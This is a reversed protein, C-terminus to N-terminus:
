SRGKRRRRGLLKDIGQEDIAAGLEELVARSAHGRAAQLSRAPRSDLDAIRADREEHFRRGYTVQCLARLDLYEIGLKRAAKREDDRALAESEDIANPRPVQKGAVATAILHAPVTFGAAARVADDGAWFREAGVNLVTCLWGIEEATVRRRGSEIAAVTNETWGARSHMAEALNAQRWGLGVRAQRLNDRIVDDADRESM